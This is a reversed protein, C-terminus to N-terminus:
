VTVFYFQLTGGAADGRIYISDTRALPVALVTSAPLTFYTTMAAVESIRIAVDCKVVMEAANTPVAITTVGTTITLPSNQPSATADSTQIGCGTQLRTNNDEVALSAFNKAM